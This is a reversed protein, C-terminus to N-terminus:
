IGPPKRSGEGRGTREGHVAGGKVWLFTLQAAAQKLDEGLAFAEEM